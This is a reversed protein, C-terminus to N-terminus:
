EPHRHLTTRWRGVADERDLLGKMAFSENHWTQAAQRQVAGAHDVDTRVVSGFGLFDREARDHKGLSYVYNSQLDHGDVRDVAGSGGRGDRVIVKSMVWRSEPMDYTNGTRAYDLEISGGLPRGVHKLLNAKGERNLRVWVQHNDGSGAEAKLVHDALGDGDMDVLGLAFGSVRRLTADGGITFNLWPEVIVIPVSFTVAFGVTPLEDYSGNAEVSDVPKGNALVQSLIADMAAVGTKLWPATVGSPWDGVAWAQEPLFGYGTNIQVYFYGDDKSSKRVYDPLGDGNVDVVTVATAAVSTEYAVSGEFVEPEFGFGLNGQVSIATTRRVKDPSALSQAVGYAGANLDLPGGVNWNQVAVCDENAAFRGGLNLRVTFGSCDPNGGRSVRDPLGDGNVDVLEYDTSSLNIGGGFGFMGHMGQIVGGDSIEVTPSSISSSLNVAVDQSNRLVDTPLPRSVAHLDHINTIKVTESRVADVIRDGNMDLLDSTQRSSGSAVQIGVGAPGAGIGGGLTLTHGEGHRSTGGVQFLAAVTTAKGDQQQVFGGERSGHMTTATIFTAGDRSVYAPTLPKLGTRTPSFWTGHRRPVLTEAIKSASPATQSTTADGVVSSTVEFASAEFPQDNKGHWAGYRWGHFGGGFVSRIGVPGKDSRLHDFTSNVAFDLGGVYQGLGNFSVTPAWALAFPLESHAEFYILEGSTVSVTVIRGPASARQKFLYGSATRATLWIPPWDVSGPPRQVFAPDPPSTDITILGDGPAVFPVLPRPNPILTQAGYLTAAPDLPLHLELFPEGAFSLASAEEAVTPRCSGLQDCLQTMQGQIEWEVSAPDIPLDSELRFVLKEAAGVQATNSWDFSGAESPSYSRTGPGLLAFGSGACPVDFATANAPFKQICARVDDSSALKKLTSTIALEGSAPIVVAGLPAGALKFDYQADFTFIGAGTPDAWGQEYATLQQCGTTCDGLATYTITPAFSAEEVPSPGTPDVPFDALTSLVFYLRTGRSVPLGTLSVPAQTATLAIKLDVAAGLQTTTPYGSGSDLVQYTRLRVGDWGPDAPDRGPFAFTGVVDVVGDYPAIWEVLADSPQLNNGLSDQFDADQASQGSLDTVVHNQSFIFNTPDAPTRPQQFWIGSPLVADILGDGDADTLFETTTSAFHSYGANVNASVVGAGASAQFAVNWAAGNEAGLTPFPVGPVQGAWPDRAPLAKTLTRLPSGMNFRVDYTGDGRDIVRDPLGDGDVDVLLSRTKSEHGSIGVRAGVATGQKFALTSIGAYVHRGWGTEESRTISKDDGGESFTWPAPPDFPIPDADTYAFTHTYFLQQSAGAGYVDVRTMRSKGFAGQQYTLRYERIADSGVEVRVSHLRRRTVVKFGLRGSTITDPRELLPGSAAQESCLQVHYPGPTGGSLAGAGERSARGAYQIGSLYLERFDENHVVLPQGAAAITTQSRDDVDYFYQTLNGNTDVARELNWQGINPASPDHSMLRANPGYGYVHLVGNKDSVEFWYSTPGGGCRVIRRFDKEVRARYVTGAPGQQCPSTDTTPVLRAGDLLYRENGTYEPAGFKTDIQVSSVSLDWGVGVWGDGAGSDYALRLEPQYAGRAKPLRIPLVLQATGQSNGQPAEVLDIGQSPDAAKLDKISNPNFSTPGPHDPTVLVANIMFTFHTTESVIQSTTRLVDKRPLARWEELSEDYYFTQIAEPAMGDPLLSPDYPITLKVAAAFKQGKPLFRYAGHPPATVNVMGAELPPLEEPGKRTIGISTKSAVAGPPIDISVDTGLTIKGGKTPDASGWSTQNESGFRLDQSALGLGSGGGLIEAEHDDDLHVARTATSGDPFRATVTVTWGDTATIPRDLAIGFAGNVGVTAGDIEITGAGSPSEAWGAIYAHDGFREGLMMGQQVQLAPYTLVIRPAGVRPGVGSGTLRVESVLAVPVGSRATGGFTLQAAQPALGVLPLQAASQTLDLGALDTWTAGDFAGVSSLHAPTAGMQISAGDVEITRDFGLEMRGADVALNTAGDGDVVKAWQDHTERAFLDMGNDLVLVLRLGSVAIADTADDPICLSVTDSTGMLREPDIEDVLTGPQSAPPLWFGGSAPQADISRSLVVARRATSEYVLYARRAARPDSAPLTAELCTPGASGPQLTMSNPTAHLVVADEFAADHSRTAEALARVDRPAQPLGAGWLEIEGVTAGGAIPTMTVTLKSSTTPSSLELTGWAATGDRVHDPAGDVSVRVGAAYVKVRRFEVAHPTSLTFVTPQGIAVSTATDRDVLMPTSAGTAGTAAALNGLRITPLPNSRAQEKCAFSSALVSLFAPLLLSRRHTM